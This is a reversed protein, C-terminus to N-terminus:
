TTFRELAETKCENSMSSFSVANSAQITASSAQIDISASQAAAGAQQAAASAQLAADIVDSSLDKALDALENSITINNDFLVQNRDELDTITQKLQAIEKDRESIQAQYEVGEEISAKLLLDYKDTLSQQAEDAFSLFKGTYIVSEDSANEGEAQMQVSVYFNNNDLALIKKSDEASIRFLVQGASLDMQKVNTFYPIKIEDNEGIFSLFISGASLLDIPTDSGNREEYITFLIYDDFPSIRITGDGQPLIVDDVALNTFKKYLEGYQTIRQFYDRYNALAM